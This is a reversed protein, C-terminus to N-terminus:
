PRTPSPEGALRTPRSGSAIVKAFPIVDPYTGSPPTTTPRRDLLREPLRAVCTDPAVAVRVGAVRAGGGSRVHVEVDDLALSKELAAKGELRLDRVGEGREGAM